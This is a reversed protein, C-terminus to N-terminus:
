SPDEKDPNSQSNPNMQSKMYIKPCNKETETFSAVPIKISTASFKYITRPLTSMKFINIKGM